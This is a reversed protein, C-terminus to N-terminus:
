PLGAPKKGMNTPGSRVSCCGRPRYLIEQPQFVFACRFLQAKQEM